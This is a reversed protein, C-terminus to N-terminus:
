EIISSPSCVNDPIHNLTCPFNLSKNGTILLTTVTKNKTCFTLWMVILKLTRVFLEQDTHSMKDHLDYSSSLCCNVFVCPAVIAIFKVKQIDSSLHQMLITINVLILFVWFEDQWKESSEMYSIMQLPLLKFPDKPTSYGTNM